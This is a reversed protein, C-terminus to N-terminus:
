RKQIVAGRKRKNKYLALFGALVMLLTGGATYWFTGIGGTEPLEYLAKNTISIVVGEDVTGSVDVGDLTELLGNNFTLTWDTSSIVYGTPAKTEHITYTGNLKDLNVTQSEVVSWNIVGDNGSIGTAIITGDQKLEFEGGALNEIAEDGYPDNTKRVSWKLTNTITYSNDSSSVLSNYGDLVNMEQVRYEYAIPLGSIVTTWGKDEVIDSSGLEYEGYDKWDDQSGVARYQLKFNIADPRGSIEGDNWVKSVTVSTTKLVNTFTFKTGNETNTKEISKQEYADSNLVEEATYEVAKKKLLTVTKEWGESSNVYFKLNESGRGVNIELLAPRLNFEDANDEWIKQLTLTETQLINEIYYNEDECNQDYTNTITVNTKNEQYDYTISSTYNRPTNEERVDYTYTVKSGGAIRELPLDEWTYTWGNEDSLTVTEYVVANGGNESQMLSVEIPSRTTGGVWEKKVTIASTSVSAYSNKIVAETGNKNIEYSPTYDKIEAEEISSIGITVPVTETYVYNKDAELTINKQTGDTYVVTLNVDQTPAEMGEPQEWLKTYTLQHTTIQVVPMPYTASGKEGNVTYSVTTSAEDNSYFGEQGASTAGTEPDGTHLYGSQSYVRNAEESPKVKFSVTYTARDELSEGGLLGITVVKNSTNVSATYQNTDLTTTEGTATRKTVSIAPNSEAFDVYQSLTDTIVVNEYTPIVKDLIDTLAGALDTGNILTSNPVKDSFKKMGARTGNTLYTSYMTAASLSKSNNVRSAAEQYYSEETEDGEGYEKNGNMSYTPEGDSLFIVVKENKSENKSENESDKEGDLLASAQEMAYTWNTGGNARLKNIATKLDEKGDTTYWNSSTTNKKDSFAVYAVSNVNGETAFIQDIIGDKKTLLKQLKDLLGSSGSMSGSKDIVFLIDAGTTEGKAGTVDLNLTYDNTDENYEIYKKHGPEGLGTNNGSRVASTANNNLSRQAFNQFGISSVTPLSESENTIDSFDTPDEDSGEGEQAVGNNAAEYVYDSNIEGEVVTYNIKVKVGNHDYYVPVEWSTKWDNAERLTATVRVDYLEKLDLEITRKNGDEGEVDVSGKLTVSLSVPRTNFQNNADDWVKTFNVNKYNLNKYSNTFEVKATTKGKLDEIVAGETPESSEGNFTVTTKASTTLEYESLEANKETITVEYQKSNSIKKNALSYYLSGDVRLTMDAGRITSVGFLKEVEDQSLKTNTGKDIASIVFEINERVATIGANGLGEFQKIIELSFENDEVPPLEQSFGVRDLFNGITNNNSATKGAVFFFRTAHSKAIYDNIKSLHNWSQDNSTIRYVYVGEADEQYVNANSVSTYRSSINVGKGSLYAALEDQTDLESGDSAGTLAISTPMIVLYMTDYEATRNQKSGRARHSLWWNLSQENYTLVDQYLAGAAECNLEAFQVGDPAIMDGYWSYASKYSETALLIEIDAGTKGGTGIGTTQWVGNNDKYYQNSLQTAKFPKQEEIQPTEFDGNQLTGYYAVQIPDTVLTTGDRLKVEAKYWKRAGDDYAPYLKQGDESINAYNGRYEVREVETYTGDSSDSRFWLYDAANELNHEVTLSGDTAINDKISLTGEKCVVYLEGKAQGEKTFEFWKEWDSSGKQQLSMFKAGGQESKYQVQSEINKGDAFNEAVYRVVVYGDPLRDKVYGAIDTIAGDTTTLPITDTQKGQLPNGNEDVYHLKMYASYGSQEVTWTITFVSFSTTAFEAKEVKAADQTEVKADVNKEAVMDVVKEVEGNENEELHLITVAADKATDEDIEEPIVPNKYEMSVKVEGNPELKNGEKDVFTIDYALFGAMQTNDQSAKEEVKQQVEKYQEQTKEDEKLIPVVKLTAGEPIIDEKEASVLIKVEDDEYELVAPKTEEETKTDEAKTDESKEDETKTDETKTDETKTDETKTDETKTDETKIDEEPQVTEEAKLNEKWILAFPLYTKEAQKFKIANVNGNGDVHFGELQAVEGNAEQHTKKTNLDDMYYITHGNEDATETVQYTMVEKGEAVSQTYSEPVNITGQKYSIDVTMDGTSPIIHSGEYIFYIDYYKYGDIVFNEETAKTTVLGNVWNFKDADAQETMNEHLEKVKLESGEPIATGDSLTVIVKKEGDEYTYETTVTKTEETHPEQTTGEAESAAETTEEEPTEIQPQETSEVSEPDETEGQITGENAEATGDTGTLNEEIQSAVIPSRSNFAVGILLIVVVFFALWRKINKM